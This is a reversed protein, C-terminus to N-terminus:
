WVGLGMLLTVGFKTKRSIQVSWLFVVPLLALVLDCFVCAVAIYQKASIVIDTM